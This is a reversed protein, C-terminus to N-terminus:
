KPNLDSNTKRLYQVFGPLELYYRGNYFSIIQHTILKRVSGQVVSKSVKRKAAKALKDLTNQTYLGEGEEVIHFLVATDAKNLARAKQKFHGDEIIAARVFAMGDELSAHHVMLYNVLQIMWFPSRDMELYYQHLADLDYNLEFAERLIDRCHVVFPRDLRPFDIMFASNFFAKDKDGFM